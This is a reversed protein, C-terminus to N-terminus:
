ERLEDFNLLGNHDADATKFQEYWWGASGHRKNEGETIEHTIVTLNETEVFVCHM